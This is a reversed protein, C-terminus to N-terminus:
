FSDPDDPDFAPVSRLSTRQVRRYERQGQNFGEAYAAELQTERPVSAGLRAAPRARDWRWALVSVALALLGPGAGYTAAVVVVGGALLAMAVLHAVLRGWSWGRSRLGTGYVLTGAGLM